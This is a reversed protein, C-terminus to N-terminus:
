PDVMVTELNIIVRLFLTKKRSGKNGLHLASLGWYELEGLFDRPCMSSPLHLEGKRYIGLIYEFM